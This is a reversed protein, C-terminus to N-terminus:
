IENSELKDNLIADLLSSSFEISPLRNESKLITRTQAANLLAGGSFIGFEPYMTSIEEGVLSRPDAIIYKGLAIGDSVPGSASIYDEVGYPCVVCDSDQLAAYFLSDPIQLRFDKDKKLVRDELIIEYNGLKKVLRLYSGDRDTGFLSITLSIHSSVKSEIEDLITFLFDYRKEARFEGILLIKFTTKINSKEVQSDNEPNTTIWGVNKVNKVGKDRLVNKSIKGLVFINKFKSSNEQLSSIIEPSIKHVMGYLGIGRTYSFFAPFLKRLLLGDLSTFFINEVRSPLYNFFNSMYSQIDEDFKWINRPVIHVDSQGIYNRFLMANQPHADQFDILLNKGKIMSAYIYAAEPYFKQQSAKELEIGRTFTYGLSRLGNLKIELEEVSEPHQFFSQLSLGIEHGTNMQLWAYQKGEDLNSKNNDVGIADSIGQWFARKSLWSYNQREPLMRHYVSFDKIFTAKLGLTQLNSQLLSEENSLLSSYGSRGLKEDFGGSELIHKRKACMASNAGWSIKESKDPLDPDFISWYERARESNVFPPEPLREWKPLVRGLFFRRDSGPSEIHKLISFYKLSPYCDDDLFAIWEGKAEAIGRNKAASVNLPRSKLARFNYKKQLVSVVEPDLLHSKSNEVLLVEVGTPLIPFLNNLVDLAQLPREATPIIITLLTM